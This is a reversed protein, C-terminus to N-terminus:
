INSIVSFKEPNIPYWLFYFKYINKDYFIWFNNYFINLKGLNKKSFISRKPFFLTSMKSFHIWKWTSQITKFFSVESGDTPGEGGPGGAPPAHYGKLPRANGWGGFFFIMAVGRTQVLFWHPNFNKSFIKFNAYLFRM